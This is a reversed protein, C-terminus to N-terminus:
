ASLAWISWFDLRNTRRMTATKRAFPGAFDAENAVAQRGSFFNAPESASLM